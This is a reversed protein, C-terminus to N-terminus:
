YLPVRNLQKHFDAVVDAPSDIAFAGTVAVRGFGAAAVQDVNDSRIGGIAFAPLSRTGPRKLESTVSKLFECGPFESFSKTKGPFTPGCGIYDAASAVAGRVQDLNHTSLGILRDPGVISRVAAVPLEEQGVHVGDADAAAAIDARDNIIWLVNRDRAVRTGACAREYLTRDDIDADRLQIIEVGCRSLEEIRQILDSQSRGADILAYLRANRLRDIRKLDRRCRLEIRALCDYARYRIRELESAFDSDILKGYEELCRLAQQVRIAAAAVLDGLDVRHNESSTTADTGVDGPTDRASLLDVRSVKTMATAIDHRLTKLHFQLEADDLIFRATEELTRLGEGVRNANADIVRM